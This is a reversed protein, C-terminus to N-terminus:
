CPSLPRILKWRQKIYLLPINMLTIEIYLMRNWSHSLQLEQVTKLKLVAVGRVTPYNRYGAQKVLTICFSGIYVRAQTLLTRLVHVSM